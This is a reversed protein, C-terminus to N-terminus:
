GSVKNLSSFFKRLVQQEGSSINTIKLLRKVQDIGYAEVLAGLSSNLFSSSTPTAESFSLEVPDNAKFHSDLALFLTYGATNTYTEKVISTLKLM